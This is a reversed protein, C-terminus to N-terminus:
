RKQEGSSCCGPSAPESSLQQIVAASPCVLEFLFYKIRPVIRPVALAARPIKAAAAVAALAAEAEAAAAKAPPPAPAAPPRYAVPPEGIPLATVILIKNRYKRPAIVWTVGSAGEM